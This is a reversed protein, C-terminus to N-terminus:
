SEWEGNKSEAELDWHFAVLESDPLDNFHELSLILGERVHDFTM